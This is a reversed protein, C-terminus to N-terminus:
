TTSPVRQLRDWRQFEAEMAAAQAQAAIRAGTHSPRSSLHLADRLLALGESWNAGDGPTNWRRDLEVWCWHRWWRGLALASLESRWKGALRRSNAEDRLKRGPSASVHHLITSRLAVANVFGLQTLRLCLDIDEGGNQFQEDFGGLHFFTERNILLCAGTVAPVRRSQRPWPYWTNDHEPKGSVNILIGAHDIAHDRVRRQVNGIAGAHPHLRAHLALLPELWGREFLLDNNILCLLDGNARRAARNNAAAYGLNQENLIVTHSTCERALWARTGDSSGDDVLIIEHALSRPLSATLTRLCEQTLALCNYLPIIFSVKVTANM